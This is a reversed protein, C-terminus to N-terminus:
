QLSQFVDNCDYSNIGGSPGVSAIVQQAPLDPETACNRYPFYDPDYWYPNGWPDETPTVYPGNWKAVAGAPWWCGDGNTDSADVAPRVLLGSTVGNLAVEPNATGSFLCGNPGRGTDLTLQLVGRIIGDIEQKANAELAGERADSINSLVVAALIGIISIGVLLEILTFGVKELLPTNNSNQTQSNKQLMYKMGVM